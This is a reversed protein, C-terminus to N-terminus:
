QNDIIFAESLDIGVERYHLSECFGVVRQADGCLANGLNNSIVAKHIEVEIIYFGYKFITTYSDHTRTITFAFAAYFLGNVIRKVRRQEVIVIHKIRFLYKEIDRETTFFAVSRAQHHFFHVVDVLKHRLKPAVKFYFPSHSYVGFQTGFDLYGDESGAKANLIYVANVLSHGFSTLFVFQSLFLFFFFLFLSSFNIVAIVCRWSFTFLM